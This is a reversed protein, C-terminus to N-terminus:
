SQRESSLDVRDDKFCLITTSDDSTLPRGRLQNSNKVIEAKGSADIRRRNTSDGDVVGRYDIM